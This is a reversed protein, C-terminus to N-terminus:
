STDVPLSPQRMLVGQVDPPRYLESKGVKGDARLVPRGDSGLKTMNSRHVEFLVADLNIGYNIAAGYTVYVIDALADAIQVIDRKATADALECVEEELLTVRLAALDPGIEANPDAQRHLDFRRHFEAVAAAARSLQFEGEAATLPERTQAVPHHGTHPVRALKGNAAPM